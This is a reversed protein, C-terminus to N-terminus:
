QQSSDAGDVQRKLTLGEPGLPYTNGNFTEETATLSLGNRQYIRESVVMQEGSRTTLVQVKNNAVPQWVGTEKTVAEGQPHYTTIASHDSLLTLQTTLTPQGSHQSIGQYQGTWHQSTDASPLVACGQFTNQATKLRAQWGYLTHESQQCGNLTLTLVAEKSSFQAQEDDLQYDSLPVEQTDNDSEWAVHGKGVAASWLQPDSGEALVTNRPQACGKLESTLMNLRSVTVAAPYDASFGRRSVPTFFGEFEAYVSAEHQDLAARQESTLDLWYQQQSGCPIFSATEPSVAIRGSQMFPIPSQSLGSAVVDSRHGLEIPGSSQSCGVLSLVSVATIVFLHRTSPM